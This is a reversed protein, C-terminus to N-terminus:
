RSGQWRGTSSQLAEDNLPPASAVGQIFRGKKDDVAQTGENVWDPAGKIGLNSEIKTSGSCATLLATAAILAIRISKNM